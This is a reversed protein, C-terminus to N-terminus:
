SRNAFDPYFEWKHLPDGVTGCNKPCNLLHKCTQCCRMDFVMKKLEDVKNALMIIYDQTAQPLPNYCSCEKDQGSLIDGLELIFGDCDKCKYAVAIGGISFLIHGM